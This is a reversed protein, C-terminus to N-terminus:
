TYGKAKRVKLLNSGHKLGGALGAGLGGATVAELPTLLRNEDIGVRVQEGAISTAGGGVIARQLTNKGGVYKALKGARLDMFPIAGMGGSALVEGWNIKDNGYLHKQVLYNTYAGQAFNIGGYALASLGGTKALTIPNLLAGTAFDTAIGGGVETSIGLIRNKLEEKRKM